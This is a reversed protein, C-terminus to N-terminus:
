TVIMGTAPNVPSSFMEMHRLTLYAEAGFAPDYQDGLPTYFGVKNTAPQSTPAQVDPAYGVLVEGCANATTQDCAAKWGGATQPGQVQNIHVGDLEVSTGSAGYQEVVTGAPWNVGAPANGAINRGGPQVHM